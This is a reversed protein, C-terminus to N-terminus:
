GPSKARGSLNSSLNMPRRFSWVTKRRVAALSSIDFFRRYNIEEAAVRWYSLRWAQKGLLDDLLDFSHPEKRTGNFIRVNEDIFDRIARNEKHLKYLRKKIIETERSREPLKSQERETYPPLCNLGTMISLLEILPPDDAPLSTELKEIRHKLIDVYTEPLIPLKRDYCCLFFAGKAFILKLEQRELVTGYQESLIPILVKNELERKVPHWDIDFFSAYPSSPGNELIDMWWDNDESGVYMHNPVIDLLQGMRRRQLERAFRNFDEETGIEPNLKAPDVVDYGVISGKRAKFYPSAYIDSIGLEDLYPLIETAASFTFRHNFQLRYTSIPIRPLPLGEDDM